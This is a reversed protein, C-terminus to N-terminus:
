TDEPCLMLFPTPAHPETLLFHQTHSNLPRSSATRSHGKM